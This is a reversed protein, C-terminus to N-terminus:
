DDKYARPPAIVKANFLNELYLLDQRLWAKVFALDIENGNDDIGLQMTTHLKRLSRVCTSHREKVERSIGM